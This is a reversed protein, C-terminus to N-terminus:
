CSLSIQDNQYPQNLFKLWQQELESKYQISILGLHSSGLHGGAWSIVLTCVVFTAFLVKACVHYPSAVQPVNKLHIAPIAKM